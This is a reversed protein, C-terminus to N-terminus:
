ITKSRDSPKSTPQIMHYPLKFLIKELHPDIKSAYQTKTLIDSLQSYGPLWHIDHLGDAQGQRVFHFRREIHRTRRTLRGNRSITVTAENDTMLIAPTTPLKQVAEKWYKTGLYLMDYLLMRLHAAAMAGSCAAMYEAEPTSLAVPTPMTSNAEILAGNYFVLYGTTSRGTDPCDQWSADTFIILDSYPIKHIRCIDYIPNNSGDPYFKIAYDPRQRIYGILWILADYDKEGPSVCAKALKCVAFLIDARTNYALYLLSCVASRFHIDSFKADILHQDENTQPRNSKSFIYHPPLPTDHQPYINDPDYRKVINLAYRHQDLTYSSDSHRHIRMQLFWQAPGLFKVDFRRAVSQEFEKEMQDDSGCYLMDDVFFILQLWRTKAKRIVFYSPDASSQIFGQSYLWESFEVNWYKGSFQLGYMGKNLLLPVGFYKAYQPFHFAYEKPLKVFHRGVVKAQLYAGIFDASKIQRRAACMNAIFMKVGRSSACPSWTDKTPDPIDYILPPPKSFSDDTKFTPLNNLKDLKDKIKQSERALKHNRRKQMDGRAVFRAKCKELDGDATQKAKLILKVQIILEEPGPTQGLIFTDHEILNRIEMHIAHLWTTRVDPDLLLVAKLSSPEPLYKAISEHELTPQTNEPLESQASHAYAFDSTPDFLDPDIPPPFKHQHNRDIIQSGNDRDNIIHNAHNCEFLLPFTQKDLAYLASQLQDLTAPSDGAELHDMHIAQLSEVLRLPRKGKGIRSSIRLPQPEEVYTSFSDDNSDDFNLTAPSSFTQNQSPTENHDANRPPSFYSPSESIDFDNLPSNPDIDSHAIPTAPEPPSTIESGEQSLNQDSTPTNQTSMFTSPEIGLDAVSGSHHFITNENSNYDVNESDPDTHTRIPISGAFPKSDFVLASDFNEDFHADQSIAFKSPLDACYILWGASYQPFGLFIGRSALQLQQKYSIPKGKFLPAYRKFYVPCGFVRFNKICPKRNLCVEYPTSPNGDTSIVNKAPCSNVIHIAYAHAHHFFAGGLRANNCLTNAINHVEKWRSECLGNMEQHEPAAAELTCGLETCTEIFERSTFATGADTRIYSAKNTRGLLRTQTLWSKLATSIADSSEEPLGIMGTYKGPTAVVFLYAPFSTNSTIGYRFPNRILDLHLQFFPHPAEPLPIKSRARKQSISIRVPWSNTDTAPSLQYDRWVKHLSGTLLNRISRFALRRSVLELPLSKISQESPIFTSMPTDDNISCAASPSEDETDSIVNINTYHDEDIDDDIITTKDVAEHVALSSQVPSHGPRILPWTFSTKDPFVVSTACKEIIISFNQTASLAVLSILRCNLGPVYLVHSLCLTAKNGDKAIFQCSSRGCATAYHITGDALTVPIKCPKPDLLDSFLPTM